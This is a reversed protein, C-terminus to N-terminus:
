CRARHGAAWREDLLAIAQEPAVATWRGAEHRALGLRELKRLADDTELDVAVGFREALWAEGAADLEAAASPGQWCLLAYGLAAEATEQEEASDLVRFFVGANNDLTRFYLNRILEKLFVIKRTKFRSLQRISFMAIAVASSGALGLAAWEGPELSRMGGDHVRLWLLGFVVMLPGLSKALVGVGGALAPVWLTLHDRLRMAVETNPFLMELDNTPVDQFLKITIEGPTFPLPKRKDGAFHAADRFRVAIVVREYFSIVVSRRRLGFSRPLQQTRSTLGCRWVHLDAFDDLRARLALPFLSTDRLAQELEQPRIVLYNATALLADLAAWFRALGDPSASPRPVGEPNPDYPAWLQKLQELRARCELHVVEQLRKGIAGLRADNTRSDDAIATLLADLRVGM